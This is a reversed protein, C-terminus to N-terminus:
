WMLAGLGAVASMADAGSKFLIVGRKELSRKKFCFNSSILSGDDYCGNVTTPIVFAAREAATAAWAALWMIILFGDLCMVAIIHYGQQISAVKETLVSYLVVVWTLVSQTRPTLRM